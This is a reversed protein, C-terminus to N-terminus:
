MTRRKVAGSSPQYEAKAEKWSVALYPVAVALEPADTAMVSPWFSTRARPM